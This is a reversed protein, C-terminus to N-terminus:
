YSSSDIQILMALKKKLQYYKLYLEELLESDTRSVKTSSQQEDSQVQKLAQIKNEVESPNGGNEIILNEIQQYKKLLESLKRGREAM